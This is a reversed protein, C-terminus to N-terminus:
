NGHVMFLSELKSVIGRTQIFLLIEYHYCHKGQLKKKKKENQKEPFVFLSLKQMLHIDQESWTNVQFSVSM